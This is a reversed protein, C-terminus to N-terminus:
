TMRYYVTVKSGVKPTGDLKTDATRDIEWKEDGKQVVITKDDISVVPGTVQYKKASAALAIVSWTLASLALVVVSARFWNLMITSRETRIADLKGSMARIPPAFDDAAPDPAAAAEPQRVVSQVPAPM